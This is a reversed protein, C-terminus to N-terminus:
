DNIRRKTIEYLIRRDAQSSRPKFKSTYHGIEVPPRKYGTGPNEYDVYYDKFYQVLARQGSNLWVKSM